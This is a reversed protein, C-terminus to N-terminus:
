RRIWSGFLEPLVTKKLSELWLNKKMWTLVFSKYWNARLSLSQWVLYFNAGIFQILQVQTKLSNRMLVAAQFFFYLDVSGGRILLPRSGEGSTLICDLGEINLDWRSPRVRNYILRLSHQTGTNLTLYVDVPEERKKKQEFGPLWDGPILVVHTMIRSAADDPILFASSTPESQWLSGQSAHRSILWLVCSVEPLKLGPRNHTYLLGRIVWIQWGNTGTRPEFCNRSKAGVAWMKAGYSTIIIEM